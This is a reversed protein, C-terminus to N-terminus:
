PTWTELRIERMPIGILGSVVSSSESRFHLADHIWHHHVHEDQSGDAIAVVTSYDGSPLRPMEFVFGAKIINGPATAIPKDMFSLWTNDGFLAQGTRDKVVFGLVPSALATLCEAEVELQVMEGGIVWTLRRGQLHLLRVERITAGGVGPSTGEPHFNFVRVDNRLNSMNLFDLRPDRTPIAAPV